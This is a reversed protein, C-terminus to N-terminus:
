FGQAEYTIGPFRVVDRALVTVADEDGKLEV